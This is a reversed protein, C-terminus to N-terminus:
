ESKSYAEGLLWLSASGAAAISAVLLFFNPKSM